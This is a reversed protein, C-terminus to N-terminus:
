RTTRRNLYIVTAATITHPLENDSQSAIFLVVATGLGELPALTRSTESVGWYSEDFNSLDWRLGDGYQSLAQQVSADSDTFEGSTYVTCASRPTIELQLGKYSKLLLADGQSLPCMVIGATIPAGAFSRGKDAEYVWGDDGGYFTRAVGNIEGTVAVRVNVDLVLSSWQLDSYNRSSNPSAPSVFASVCAGSEFFLRYMGLSPVYVACRANLGRVFPDIKLSLRDWLFNGFVDSAPYRVVGPTDFAIVGGIDIATDPQAGQVRSQTILRWPEAASNGYLVHLSNRCLVMLAANVESGGISVLNTIVDGTGIEGAGTIPTWQYPLGTGSHQLSGGYAFFVHFKHVAVAQARVTGMGTTLPVLIDDGFEFERNVGDCGYVRLTDTSGSFNFRDTRVRGGPSLTIATGQYVGPGAGPVSGQSATDLAGGSFNGGDPETIIYRGAATGAGWSGSELVVRKITATVTGAGQAVTDGEAPQVSGGSFSLEYFLEVATWGTGTSKHIAMAMTDETDRWAYVTDDHVVLGRIPGSGPVGAIAAQYVDAAKKALENDEFGDIPPNVQTVEGVVDVGVLLDEGQTFQGAVATVVVRTASVDIVVGTATSTDGTITAGLVALDLDLGEDCQLAVFQAASPSPRGDFPEYGDVRRVGGNVAAEYNLLLRPTGQPAFLPSTTADMGSRLRVLARQLPPMRPRQM